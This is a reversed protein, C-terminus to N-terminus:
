QNEKVKALIATVMELLEARENHDQMIEFGLNVVGEILEKNEALLKAHDETLAHLAMEREEM